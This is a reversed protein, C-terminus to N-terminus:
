RGLGRVLSSVLVLTQLPLRRKAVTTAPPVIHVGFTADNNNNDNNSNVIYIAAGYHSLPM